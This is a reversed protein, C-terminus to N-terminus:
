RIKKRRSIKESPDELDGDEDESDAETKLIDEKRKRSFMKRKSAETKPRNRSVAVADPDATSVKSEITEPSSSAAPITETKIESEARGPISRPGNRSLFNEQKM